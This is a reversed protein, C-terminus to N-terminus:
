SSRRLWGPWRFCGRFLTSCLASSEESFSGLFLDDDAGPVRIYIIGIVCLIELCAVILPMVILMRNQCMLHMEKWFVPNWNDSTHQDLM